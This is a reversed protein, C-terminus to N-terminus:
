TKNLRPKDDINLQKIRSNPFYRSDNVLRGLSGDDRTADLSCYFMFYFRSLEEM